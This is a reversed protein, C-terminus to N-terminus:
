NQYTLMLALNINRELFYGEKNGYARSVISSLIRNLTLHSIDAGLLLYAEPGAM